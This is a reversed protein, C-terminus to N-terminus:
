NTAAEDRRESFRVGNTGNLNTATPNAPPTLILPDAVKARATRTVTSRRDVLKRMVALSRLLMLAIAAALVMGTNDRKTRPQRPATDVPVLRVDVGAAFARFMIELQSLRGSARFVLRELIERRYARFPCTLTQLDCGTVTVSVRSVEQAVLERLTSRGDRPEASSKGVGAALDAGDEIIRVLDHLWALPYDSESDVTCIVPSSTHVLATRIAEGMGSEVPQHVVQAWEKSQSSLLLAALTNDTSADDVLVVKWERIANDQLADLQDFLAAIREQANRCRVIVSVPETTM